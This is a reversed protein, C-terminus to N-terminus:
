GKQWNMMARTLDASTKAFESGLEIAKEADAKQGRLALDLVKAAEQHFKAHLDQVAKGAPSTREQVPLAYLWKGFECLNDVKVNTVQFESKGTAIATKLRAKWMGHAGIAKQITEPDVM